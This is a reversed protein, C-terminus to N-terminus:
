SFLLKAIFANQQTTEREQDPPSYTLFDHISFQLKCSIRHLGGM